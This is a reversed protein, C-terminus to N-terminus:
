FAVRKAAPRTSAPVGSVLVQHDKHQKEKKWTIRLCQVFGLFFFLELFVGV